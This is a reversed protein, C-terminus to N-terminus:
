AGGQLPVIKPLAQLQGNIRYLNTPLPANHGWNIAQDWMADILEQQYDNGRFRITRPSQVITEAKHLLTGQQDAILSQCVVQHEQVQIVEGRPGFPMGIPGFGKRLEYEIVRGTASENTNVSLTIGGSGLKYGLTLLRNSLSQDVAAKFKPSNSNVHVKVVTGPPILPAVKGAAAQASIDAAQPDPLTVATLVTRDQGADYIYWFRGDPSAGAPKGKAPAQYTAIANKFDFDFLTLNALVHKPGCWQLPATALNASLPTEIAGTALNWRALHTGKANFYVAALMKGDRSFTSAQNAQIGDPPAELMGQRAGTAADLIDIASPGLVAVYKRGASFEPTGRYGNGMYVAQCEPVKWLALQGKNSLTLVRDADVFRFWEIKDGSYPVWGVLHKGDQLNWVDLRPDDKTARVALRNGDPSLEAHANVPQAQGVVRPQNGDVAAFLVTEGVFKGAALDYRDARLFRKQALPTPSVSALVVASGNGAFLVQATEAPTTRLSLPPSPKVAPAADAQASWAVAGGPVELIKASAVDAARPEPLAAPGQEGGARAMKVKAAIEASPLAEFRLGQSLATGGATAVHDKGVFRRQSRHTDGPAPALTHVPAGSVYDILIQGYFLWGSKDPAWELIPGPYAAAQPVLQAVAQSFSHDIGPEGKAMKWTMLRTKGFHECYCAFESGDASFALANVRGADKPVVVEGVVEGKTARLLVIRHGTVNNGEPIALYKRGPSLAAQQKFDPWGKRQYQHVLQGTATDWIEYKTDLQVSVTTVIHNDEVFDHHKLFPTEVAFSPLFKKAPFSWVHIGTTGFKPGKGRGALLKGDPSLVENNMAPKGKIAAV